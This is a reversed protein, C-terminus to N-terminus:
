RNTCRLQMAPQGYVVKAGCSLADHMKARCFYVVVVAVMVMSVTVVAALVFWGPILITTYACRVSWDCAVSNAVYGATMLQRVRVAESLASDAQRPRGIGFGVVSDQTEASTDM